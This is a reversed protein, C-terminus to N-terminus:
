PEKDAKANGGRRHLRKHLPLADLQPSWLLGSDDRWLIEVEGNGEESRARGALELCNGSGQAPSDFASLM